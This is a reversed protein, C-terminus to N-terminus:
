KGGELAEADFEHNLLMDWFDEHGLYAEYRYEWTREGQYRGFLAFCREYIEESIEKSWLITRGEKPSTDDVCDLEGTSPTYYFSIGSNPMSCVYGDIVNMYKVSIGDAVSSAMDSYKEFMGQLKKGKSFLDLAKPDTSTNAIDCVHETREIWDLKETKFQEWKSESADAQGMSGGQKATEECIELIKFSRFPSRTGPGASDSDAFSCLAFMEMRTANKPDVQSIDIDFVEKKGNLNSIVQVIPKEFTSRGLLVARLGYVASQGEQPVAASGLFTGEREAAAATVAGSYADTHSVQRKAAAQYRYDVGSVSGVQM